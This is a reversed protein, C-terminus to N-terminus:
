FIGMSLGAALTQGLEECQTLAEATPPGRCIIPEAVEKVPMGRLIRQAQTVAGRGDNGASVFLSCPKIMECDQLPYYVRDLFDKMAGALAGSNEAFGLLLGDCGLLEEAGADWARLYDVEIGEERMAGHRVAAALRATAGSQSHYVILLKKSM